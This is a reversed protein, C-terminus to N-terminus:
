QGGAGFILGRAVNPGLPRLQISLEMRPRARNHRQNSYCIRGRPAPPVFERHSALGTVTEARRLKLKSFLFFNVM